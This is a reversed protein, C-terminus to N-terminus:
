SKTDNQESYQNLLRRYRGLVIRNGGDVMRLLVIHHLSIGVLLIIGVGPFEREEMRFNDPASEPNKTFRAGVMGLLSTYVLM